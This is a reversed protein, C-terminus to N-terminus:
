ARTTNNVNVERREDLSKDQSISPLLIAIRCLCYRATIYLFGRRNGVPHKSVFGFFATSTRTDWSGLHQQWLDLRRLRLESPQEGTIRTLTVRDEAARRFLLSTAHTSTAYDERDFGLTTTPLFFSITPSLPPPPTHQQSAFAPLPTALFTFHGM